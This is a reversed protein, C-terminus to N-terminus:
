LAEEFQTTEKVQPLRVSKMLARVTSIRVPRRHRLADALQRTIRDAEYRTYEAAFTVFENAMPHRPRKGTADVLRVRVGEAELVDMRRRLLRCVRVVVAQRPCQCPGGFLDETAIDVVTGADKPDIASM